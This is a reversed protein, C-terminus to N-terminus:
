LGKMFKPRLLFPFFRKIAYAPVSLLCCIIICYILSSIYPKYQIGFLATMVALGSIIKSQFAYYVLTNAGIFGLFKLFVNNRCSELMVSICVVMMLGIIASAYFVIFNGFQLLHVDVHRNDYSLVVTLYCLTTAILTKKSQVKTLYKFLLQGSYAQRCVYGALLFPIFICANQIHWPLLINVNVVLLYYGMLSFLLCILLRYLNSSVVRLVFYFVVEMIFLCAVFWLDDWRGPFQILLGSIYDKFDTGKVFCSLICNIMGLSFIPFVLSRLKNSIFIVWNRKTSFTYGSVFFFGVLEFPYTFRYYLDPVSLHNFIVFFMCIGKVYDVWIFRTTEDSIETMDFQNRQFNKEEM